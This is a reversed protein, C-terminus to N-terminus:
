WVTESEELVVNTHTAEELQVAVNRKPAAKVLQGDHDALKEFDRHLNPRKM